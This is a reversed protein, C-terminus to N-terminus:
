ESCLDKRRLKEVFFKYILAGILAGLSNLIIDDIDADGMHFIGQYAESLVCLIFASLFSAAVTHKKAFRAATLAVTSYYAINGVTRMVGLSSFGGTLNSFEGKFPIFNVTYDFATARYNFYLLIYLTIMVPIYGTFFANYFFAYDVDKNKNLNAILTAAAFVSFICILAYSIHYLSSMENFSFASIGFLNFVLLGIVFFSNIVVMSQAIFNLSKEFYYNIATLSAPLFVCIIYKLVRYDKNLFFPGWFWDAFCVTIFFVCVFFVIRSLLKLVRTSQMLM